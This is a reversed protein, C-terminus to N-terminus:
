ISMKNITVATSRVLDSAKKKNERSQPISGPVAPGRAAPARGRPRAAAGPGSDSSQCQVSGGPPVAARRCINFTIM